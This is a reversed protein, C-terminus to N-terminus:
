LHFNDPLNECLNSFDRIPDGTLLLRSDNLKLAAKVSFKTGGKGYHDRIAKVRPLRDTQPFFDQPSFKIMLSKMVAEAMDYDVGVAAAITTKFSSLRVEFEDGTVRVISLRYTGEPFSSGSPVVVNSSLFTTM